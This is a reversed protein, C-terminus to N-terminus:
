DLRIAVRSHDETPRVQFVLWAFLMADAFIVFSGVPAIPEGAPHSTHALRVGIASVVASAIWSQGDQRESAAYEQTL